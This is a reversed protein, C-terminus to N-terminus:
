DETASTLQLNIERSRQEISLSLIGQLTLNPLSIGTLEGLKGQCYPVLSCPQYVLLVQLFWNVIGVRHPMKDGLLLSSTSNIVELDM